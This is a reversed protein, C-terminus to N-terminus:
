RKVDSFKRMDDDWYKYSKLKPRVKWYNSQNKAGIFTLFNEGHCFDSGGHNVVIKIPSEQALKTEAERIQLCYHDSHSKSKRKHIVVFVYKALFTWDFWCDFWFTKLDKTGLRLWKLINYNNKLHINGPYNWSQGGLTTQLAFRTDFTICKVGTLGLPPLGKVSQPSEWQAGPFALKNYM